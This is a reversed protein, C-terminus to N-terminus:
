ILWMPKQPVTKTETVNLWAQYWEALETKQDNTLCEYWLAGRNVYPFCLKERQIRLDAVIRQEEIEKQKEDNKVLKGDESLCYSRYNNEFDNIDEPENVEISPSSFGGILAYAKVYGQENLIIQM